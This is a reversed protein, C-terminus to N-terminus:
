EADSSTKAIQTSRDWCWPRCVTYVRALVRRPKEFIVLHQFATAEFHHSTTLTATPVLIPELRQSYVDGNAPLPSHLLPKHYVDAGTARGQGGQILHLGVQQCIAGAFTTQLTRQDDVLHEVEAQLDANVGVVLWQPLHLLIHCLETVMAPFHNGHCRQTAAHLGGLQREDRTVLLDDTAHHLASVWLLHPHLSFSLVTASIRGFVGKDGGSGIVIEM